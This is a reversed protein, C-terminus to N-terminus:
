GPEKTDGIVSPIFFGEYFSPLGKFADILEQVTVTDPDHEVVLKQEEGEKEIYVRSVGEMRTVTSEIEHICKPCDFRCEPIVASCDIDFATRRDMIVDNCEPKM